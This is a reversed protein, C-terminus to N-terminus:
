TNKREKLFRNEELEVAERYIRSLNADISGRKRRKEAFTLAIEIWQAKHFKDRYSRSLKEIWQSVKQRTSLNEVSDQDM